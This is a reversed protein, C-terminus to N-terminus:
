SVWARRNATLRPQPEAASLTEHNWFVSENRSQRGVSNSIMGLRFTFFLPHNGVQVSRREQDSSKSHLSSCLTGGNQPLARPRPGLSLKLVEQVITGGYPKMRKRASSPTM